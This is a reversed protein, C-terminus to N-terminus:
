KWLRSGCVALLANCVSSRAVGAQQLFEAEEDRLIEMGAISSLPPAGAVM